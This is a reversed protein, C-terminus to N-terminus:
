AENGQNADLAVTLAEKESPTLVQRVDLVMVMGNGTPLVSSVCSLHSVLEGAELREGSEEEIIGLTADVPLAVTTAGSRIVLLQDHLGLEREPLKFRRRLDVVPIARGQLSIVGSVAGFTGPLRTIEVARLVREVEDLPVAYRQGDLSFSIHLVPGGM